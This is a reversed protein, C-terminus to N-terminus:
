IAGVVFNGPTLMDPEVTDFRAFAVQAAGGIGDPDYYLTGEWYILHDDADLAAPGNVLVDRTVRTSIAAFAAPDLRIRDSATFDQVFSLPIRGSWADAAGTFYFSDSGDGGLMSVRGQGLVSALVDAGAEGVLIDFGASGSGDGYLIDNGAGGLIYDTDAGGHLIDAGNGGFLTDGGSGGFLEDAGNGGYLSDGGAGGDIRDNGGEGFLTNGFRNGTIQDDGAFIASQWREASWGDLAHSWAYADISLGGAITGTLRAVPAFDPAVDIGSIVTQGLFLDGYWKAELRDYRAFATSGYIDSDTFYLGQVDASLGEEIRQQFGFYDAFYFERAAAYLTLTVM